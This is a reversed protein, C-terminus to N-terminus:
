RKKPPSRHGKKGKRPPRGHEMLADYSPLVSLDPLLVVEIRRNKAKGVNTDNPGVPRHEAFTAASLRDASMGAEVMVQVVHIARASGLEWNSPFDDSAIPDSDTHGEVQFERGTRKALLHAVQSVTARGDSSLEASGSPVLVDAAMGIVIRGEDVTVELVGRDILPQFEKRLELLQQAAAKALNSSKALDGELKVIRQQQQTIQEQATAYQGELALYQSKAVCGVALAVSLALVLKRM